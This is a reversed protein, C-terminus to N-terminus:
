TLTEFSVSVFCFFLVSFYFMCYSISGETFGCSLVVVYSSLCSRLLNQRTQVHVKKSCLLGVPSLIALSPNSYVGVVLIEVEPILKFNTGSNDRTCHHCNIIENVTVHSTHLKCVLSMNKVKDDFFSFSAM